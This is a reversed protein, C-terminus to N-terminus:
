NEQESLLFPQDSGPQENSLILAALGDDIEFFLLNELELNVDNMEPHSNALARLHRWNQLWRVVDTILARGLLLALLALNLLILVTM